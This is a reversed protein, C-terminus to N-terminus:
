KKTFEAHFEIDFWDLIPTRACLVPETGGGGLGHLGFTHETPKLLLRSFNALAYDTFIDFGGKARDEAQRIAATRARMM